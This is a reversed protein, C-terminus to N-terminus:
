VTLWSQWDLFSSLEIILFEWWVLIRAIIDSATSCSFFIHDITEVGVLCVLCSISPIDLGRLSMNYRSPLKNLRIRWVLINVKIPVLKFWRTHPGDMICLGEDVHIRASSVLFIGDGSLSWNWVNTEVYLEVSNVLSLLEEMQNSKPGGRPNRRFSSLIGVQLKDFVIAQKNVKLALLRPFKEKLVGGEIWKELWFSTKNGNGVKKSICSLLDIGKTQLQNMSRICDLWPSSNGVQIDSSLNGCNGHIAEKSTIVKEWSFWSIKRSDADVGRFFKSRITELPNLVGIPVKFLSFSYTPLASLVSKTLTYRGGISLTKAKWKSLRSLVKNIVVDWNHTRSINNGVLVGLYKFPPKTAECGIVNARICVKDFNIGEVGILSCKHINICLGSALCFCHLIYVINCFIEEKWEGIFVVDDAYFLHSINVSEQSGIKIGKFFGFNMARTFSFHLSEMVLLFLFPSLPDSILKDMVMSLRNALIKGVIKYQCGILSIPRYDKVVKADNLKPIMTIFSPNCGKPFNGHPGPSKNSGCDWVAKKIELNTVEAELLLNQDFSLTTPFVVENNYHIQACDDFSFSSAFHQLFVQKVADADKIAWKVKAKQALDKGNNVDINTLKKWLDRRLTLLDELRGHQDIQKDISELNKVVDKRKANDLDRNQHVLSKIKHKLLVVLQEFSKNSLWSHYLKFPISGYDTSTEKLMIPRHDSLHKSLISGSLGPLQCLIGESVLFRDLKSMKRADKLVWTFSYGGLPIDILYRSQIFSNFLVDGQKNFKSGFRESPFCVENFDGMVIVEGPWRNIVGQLYNWLMRKETIEQSAYVGIMLLKYNLANWVGEVLVFYNSIFVNIKTFSARDWVCLVGKYNGVSPSFLYEFSMNGWLSRVVFADVSEIKTEQLSLFNIKNHCCLDKVWQKKAKPGLGQINLSLINM